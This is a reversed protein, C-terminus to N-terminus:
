KAFVIKKNIESGNVRMVCFYTGSSLVEGNQGKGDWVVSHTGVRMERDVLRKVLQGTMNYVYIQVHGDEKLEFSINTEPNFPNPYNQHLEYAVPASQVAVSIPGHLCSQGKFNVDALQYHYNKEPEVTKDVFIYNNAANSNGAGPIIADNIQKFEGNEAEARLINYGMNETETATSWHLEVELGRNIASFSTLEVPVPNEQYGFDADDMDEQLILTVSLPENGTTLLHQFGAFNVPLTSEDIDVTYDDPALDNFDYWGHEVEPTGPNDGTVASATFTTGVNTINVQVGDIGPEGVDQVGDGNYDEWVFDGISGTTPEDLILACAHFVGSASRKGAPSDIQSEIQVALWPSEAPITVTAYSRDIEQGDASYFVDTDVGLVDSSSNDIDVAGPVDVISGTPIVDGGSMCWLGTAQDAGVGGVLLIVNASREVASATFSYVLLETTPYGRHEYFYDAGDAILVYREPASPHSYVVFIGSGYPAGYGGGLLAIDFGSIFYDHTGIEIHSTIDARYTIRYDLAMPPTIGVLTGPIAVDPASDVKLNVEDDGLNDPPSDEDQGCWYLYAAEVTAGSPITITIRGSGTEMMGVAGAIVELQGRIGPLTVALEDDGNMEEARFSGSFFAFSLCALVFLTFLTLRFAKNHFLPSPTM